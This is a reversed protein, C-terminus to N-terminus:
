HWRISCVSVTATKYQQGKVLQLPYKYKLVHNM